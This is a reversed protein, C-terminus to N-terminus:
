HSYFEEPVIACICGASVRGGKRRSRSPPGYGYVAYASAGFRGTDAFCRTFPPSVGSYASNANPPQRLDRYRGHKHAILSPRNVRCIMPRNNRSIETVYRGPLVRGGIPRNDASQGRNDGRNVARWRLSLIASPRINGLKYM